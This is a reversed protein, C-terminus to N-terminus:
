KGHKMMARCSKECERCEKACASMAKDDPYKECEKGCKACADACATCILNSFPGHCAVIRAAASCIEACDQCTQLTTMHQKKGEALMMACHHACEDCERQCESCAESCEEYMDEHEEHKKPEQAFVGGQMAALAAASASVLGFERRGIM